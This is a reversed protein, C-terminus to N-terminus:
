FSLNGGLMIRPDQNLSLGMAELGVHRSGLRVGANISFRVSDKAFIDRYNFFQSECFFSGKGKLNLELGIASTLFDKRNIVQTIQGPLEIKQKDTSSTKAHLYGRVPGHIEETITLYLTRLHELQYLDAKSLEEATMPAFAIGMCLDQKGNRASYKLGLATSDESYTLGPVNPSSSREYQLHNLSLELNKKINFTVGSYHENKSVRYGVGGLLVNQKTLGSKHSLLITGQDPFDPTPITVLGTTGTLCLGGHPVRDIPTGMEDPDVELIQSFGPVPTLLLGLGLILAALLRNTTKKKM